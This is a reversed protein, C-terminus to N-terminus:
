SRRRRSSSSSRRRRRSSSSRRRRSSSRRRRSSSRRRRSSSRRRRSSSRRRRSSSRRRRSSSSSRRRRSSSRDKVGSDFGLMYLLSGVNNIKKALVKQIEYENTMGNDILEKLTLIIQGTAAQGLRSCETNKPIKRGIKIILRIKDNTLKLLEKVKDNIMSNNLENKVLDFLDNDKIKESIKSGKFNNNCKANGKADTGKLELLKGLGYSNFKSDLLINIENYQQIYQQLKKESNILFNFCPLVKHDFSLIWCLLEKVFPLQKFLLMGEKIKQATELDKNSKKPVPPPPKSQKRPDM